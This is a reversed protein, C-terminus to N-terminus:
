GMHWALNIANTAFTSAMGFFVASSAGLLVGFFVAGYSVSIGVLKAGALISFYLPVSGLVTFFGTIVFYQMATVSTTTCAIASAANTVTATITATETVTVSPCPFVTVCTALTSMPIEQM